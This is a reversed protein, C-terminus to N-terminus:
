KDESENNLESPILSGKVRGASTSHSSLSSIGTKLNLSANEGTLVSNKEKIKVNEYVNILHANPNYVGYRGTITQRGNTASVNGVAIIKDVEDSNTALNQKYLVYMKDASVTDTKEKVKVREELVILQVPQLEIAFPLREKLSIMQNQIDLQQRYLFLAESNAKKNQQLLEVQERAALKVLQNKGNSDKEYVLSLKQAKLRNIDQLLNVNKFATITHIDQEVIVGNESTLYVNEKDEALYNKQQEFSLDDVQAMEKPKNFFLTETAGKFHIKNGKESVFFGAAKLMGAPGKIYVPQESGITGTNYDCIVKTSIAKYGNNTVTDVQEDFYLYKEEQFALGYPSVANLIVGDSMEYTAKPKDLTIIKRAPNTEQVSVALVTFPNQKKDKSFFRVEEMDVQSGKQPKVDALSSSFTEKQEMLAPWAIMIGALLFAFIPLSRKFVFVRRSHIKIKLLRLTFM